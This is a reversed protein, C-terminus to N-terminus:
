APAASASDNTSAVQHQSRATVPQSEKWRWAPRSALCLSSVSTSALRAAISLWSTRNGQVTAKYPQRVRCRCRGFAGWRRRRRTPPVRAGGLANPARRHVPRTPVSPARPYPCHHPHNTTRLHTMCPNPAPRPPRPAPGHTSSDHPSGRRPSCNVERERLLSLSGGKIISVARAPPPNNPSQQLGFPLLLPRRRWLQLVHVPLECLELALVDDDVDDNKARSTSRVGQGWDGIRRDVCWVGRWGRPCPVVSGRAHTQESYITSKRTHHVERRSARKRRGRHGGM